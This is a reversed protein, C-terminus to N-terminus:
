PKPHEMCPLFGPSLIDVKFSILWQLIIQVKGQAFKSLLGVRQNLQPILGICNDETRWQEGHLYDSWTMRNNVTLGLLRESQTDKVITNCVNIEINLNDGNLLSNRLQTTGIVLLKTKSGSCVMRNDSVWDTSRDAERQIKAKLEEVDKAHVNDTDDDAYLVSDGEIASAPFDNNFLLFILPGLLTSYPTSATVM